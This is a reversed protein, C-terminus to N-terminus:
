KFKEINAITYSFMKEEIAQKKATIYEKFELANDNGDGFDLIYGKIKLALEYDETKTLYKSFIEACEFGFSLFIEPKARDEIIEYLLEYCVLPKIAEPVSASYKEDFLDGIYVKGRYKFAGMFSILRSRIESFTLESVPMDQKKKKDYLFINTKREELRSGVVVVFIIFAGLIGVVGSVAFLAIKAIMDDLKTYAFCAGIIAVAILIAGFRIIKDNVDTNNAPQNSKGNQNM